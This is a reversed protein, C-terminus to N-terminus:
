GDCQFSNCDKWDCQVLMGKERPRTKGIVVMDQYITEEERLNEEGLSTTINSPNSTFSKLM